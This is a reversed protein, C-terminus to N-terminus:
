RTQRKGWDHRQLNSALKDVCSRWGNKLCAPPVRVVVMQQSCNIASVCVCMCCMCARMCLSACVYDRSQRKGGAFSSYIINTSTCTAVDHLDTNSSINRSGCNRTQTKLSLTLSAIHKCMEFQLSIGAYSNQPRLWRRQTFLRLSILNPVSVTVTKVGALLLSEFYYQLHKLTSRFCVRVHKPIKM